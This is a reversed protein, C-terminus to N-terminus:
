DTLVVRYTVLEGAQECVHTGVERFGLSRTLRLTRENWAQVAARLRTAGTVTRYHDLVVTVFAPGHGRGVWGPDMGVGIDLVGEQPALGPVAAEVGACCFGILPGGDAGAVALYAQNDSMLGDEPRSNYIKWPGDYRWQAIVKADAVTLPRVTLRDPWPESMHRMMVASGQAM